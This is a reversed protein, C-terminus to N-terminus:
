LWRAKTLSADSLLVAGFARKHREGVPGNVAAKELRSPKRTHGVGTYLCHDITVVRRRDEACGPVSAEVKAFPISVLTNAPVCTKAVPNKKVSRNKNKRSTYPSVEQAADHLNQRAKTVLPPRHLNGLLDFAINRDVQNRNRDHVGHDAHRSRNHHPGGAKAIWNQPPV